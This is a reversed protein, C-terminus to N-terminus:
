PRPVTDDKEGQGRHCPMYDEDHVTMFADWEERTLRGDRNTDMRAHPDGARTPPPQPHRIAELHQLLAERTQYEPPQQLQGHILVLAIVGSIVAIM